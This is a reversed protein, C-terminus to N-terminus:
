RGLKNKMKVYTDYSISHEIECAEKKATDLDVGCNKLLEVLFDYKDLLCISAQTGKETLHLVGDRSNVLGQKMLKDVANSISPRSYGMYDALDSRRFEGRTNQLIFIAKLYNEGSENHLVWDGRDM